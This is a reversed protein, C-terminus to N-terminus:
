TGNHVCLPQSPIQVVPEDMSHLETYVAQQLFRITAPLSPCGKGGFLQANSNTADRCEGHVAFKPKPNDGGLQHVSIRHGQCLTNSLHQNAEFCAKSAGIVVIAQGSLVYVGINLIKKWFSFWHLMMSWMVIPQSM